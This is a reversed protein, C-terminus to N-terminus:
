YRGVFEGIQAAVEWASNEFGLMEASFFTDHVADKEHYIQVKNGDIAGMEDVWRVIREYFIEASGASSFIPVSTAFPNGLPTIYPDAAAGPRGGGYSHAGWAGYSSPVFDTGLHPNGAMEYDFPAVWPSILVACKPEPIGTAAGHEALYRLLATVLNGGASDGAVVIQKAPVHVVNLLFLYSSLADQLAAPYPNLGGYGSLRYQVSFVSDARGKTLLMKAITACQADRGDGQIFAGGHFYLFVTKSAIAADPAKPFWTGGIVAPQITKSVPLGQYVSTAAPEVVQFRDGEKRKELTLSDTIGVRSIM